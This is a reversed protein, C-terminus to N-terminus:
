NKQYFIFVQMYSILLPRTSSPFSLNLFSKRRKYKFFRMWFVNCNLKGRSKFLLNFDKCNVYIFELDLLILIRSHVTYLDLTFFLLTVM